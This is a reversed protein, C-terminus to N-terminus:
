QESGKLENEILQDIYMGMKGVFCTENCLKTQIILQNDSVLLKSEILM